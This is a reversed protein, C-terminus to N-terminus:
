SAHPLPYSRNETIDPDNIDHEAASTPQFQALLPCVSIIRLIRISGLILSIDLFCRNQQREDRKVTNRFVLPKNRLLPIM